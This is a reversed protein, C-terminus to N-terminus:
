ENTDNKEIKHDEKEFTKHTCFRCDKQQFSFQILASLLTSNQVPDVITNSQTQVRNLNQM